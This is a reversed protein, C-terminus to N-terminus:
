LRDLLLRDAAVMGGESYGNEGSERFKGAVENAHDIVYLYVGEYTGHAGSEWGM